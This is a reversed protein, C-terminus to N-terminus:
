NTLNYFRHKGVRLKGPALSEDISALITGDLDVAKQETLRRLESMSLGLEGSIDRLKRGSIRITPAEVASSGHVLTTVESALKKQAVRSSPNSRQEEMLADIETKPLLTMKLLYEEVDTDATNFWFQYFDFPSTKEPDLWVAGGESKGFKKGTAKNLLLGHTTGYAVSGTKRRILDIGSVINGWQDSSGHQWDCGYSEHLHLFDYAQLLMYSFETYSIGQERNELRAKVSDRQIMANVSFNKGVDRLFDLLTAKELWEANNVMRFDGSGLLTKAQAAIRESNHTVQEPTLLTREEDKGSPDGIMGTGGGVVLIVKHGAELFRRLVLIGMLNGVHLSDASPDFGEYVTRSEGDTIEQLPSSHQYIYGRERLVESLKM